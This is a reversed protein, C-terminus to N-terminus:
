RADRTMRDLSKKERIEIHITCFCNDGGCINRSQIKGSVEKELFRAVIADFHSHFCQCLELYVKEEQEKQEEKNQMIMKRIVCDEFKITCINESISDWSFNWGGSLNDQIDKMVKEFGAQELCLPTPMQQAYIKGAESYIKKSSGKLYKSIIDNWFTLLFYVEKLATAYDEDKLNLAEKCFLLGKM